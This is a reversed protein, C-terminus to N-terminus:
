CVFNEELANLSATNNNSELDLKSCYHHSSILSHTNSNNGNNNNEARDKRYKDNVALYKANTDLRLNQIEFYRRQALDMIPMTLRSRFSLLCLYCCSFIMLVFLATEVAYYALYLMTCM